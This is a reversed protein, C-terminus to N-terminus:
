FLKKEVRKCEFRGDVTDKPNKKSVKHTKLIGNLRSMTVVSFSFIDGGSCTCSLETDTAKCSSKLNSNKSINICGSIGQPMIINPDTVDATLNFEAPSDAILPGKAVGKCYFNIEEANAIEVFFAGLALCLLGKCLKTIMM